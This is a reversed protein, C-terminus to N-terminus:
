VIDMNVYIRGQNPPLFLGQGQKVGQTSNLLSKEVLGFIHVSYMDVTYLVEKSSPARFWAVCVCVCLCVSTFFSCVPLVGIQAAAAAVGIKSQHVVM